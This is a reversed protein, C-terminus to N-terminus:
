WLEEQPIAKEQVRHLPAPRGDYLRDAEEDLGAALLPEKWGETTTGELLLGLAAYAEYYPYIEPHFRIEM